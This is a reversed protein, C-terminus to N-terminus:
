ARRRDAFLLLHFGAEILQRPILSRRQKTDIDDFNGYVIRRARADDIRWRHEGIRFGPREGTEPTAAIVTVFRLFGRLRILTVVDSNKGVCVDRCACARTVADNEVDGIRALRRTDIGHNVLAKCVPVRRGEVIVARLHQKCIFPATTGERAATGVIRQGPTGVRDVVNDIAFELEAAVELHGRWLQVNFVADRM